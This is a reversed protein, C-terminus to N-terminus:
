MPIRIGRQNNEKLRHWSTRKKEDWINTYSVGVGDGQFRTYIAQRSVQRLIFIRSSPGEVEVGDFCFRNIKWVAVEKRRRARATREM